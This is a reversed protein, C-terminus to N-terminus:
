VSVFSVWVFHNRDTMLVFAESDGLETREHGFPLAVTSHPLPVAALGRRQRPASPYQLTLTHKGGSTIFVQYSHCTTVFHNREQPFDM